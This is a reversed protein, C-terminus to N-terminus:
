SPESAKAGKELENQIRQGKIVERGRDLLHARVRHYDEDVGALGGGETHEYMLYEFGADEPEWARTALFGSLKLLAEMSHWKRGPHREFTPWYFELEEKEGFQEREPRLPRAWLGRPHTEFYNPPMM